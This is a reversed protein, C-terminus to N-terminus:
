PLVKLTVFVVRPQGVSLEPTCAIQIETDLLNHAGVGLQLASSIDYSLQADVQTFSDLAFRNRDDDFQKSHHQVDVLLTFPSFRYSVGVYGSHKPVQPTLNGFLQSDAAETIKSDTFVYNGRLAMAESIPWTGELEIGRSRVAGVNQRQRVILSETVELTANSIADQLNMYFLTLGYDGLPTEYVDLGFEFGTVFEPSLQSNPSTIVDGVRFGRYLENLTPSRFSRYAAGRLKVNTAFNWAASLRPSFVGQTSSPREGQNPSDNSLPTFLSDTQSQRVWDYRLSASINVNRFAQWQDQIYMGWNAHRGGVDLLSRAEGNWYSTEHSVGQKHNFSVGFQVRHAPLLIRGIVDSVWMRSPVHQSRVLQESNRHEAVASFRQNFEQQHYLTQWELSIRPSVQYMVESDATYLRTDNQQIHTGNDRQEDFVSGRLRWMWRDQVFRTAVSLQNYVANARTDVQGRRNEPTKYYQGMKGTKGAVQLHVNDTLAKRVSASVDYAGNSHGQMLIRTHPSRDPLFQITGSIPSSGYISSGGGRVIEARDLAAMNLRSWYVWGGFADNLPLGEWLVLSRSAGSPGIGRLSVGQITPNSIASSSRRFLSFGPTHEVLEDVAPTAVLPQSFDVRSVSFHSEAIPTADRFATVTVASDAEYFQLPSQSYAPSIAFVLIAIRALTQTKRKM